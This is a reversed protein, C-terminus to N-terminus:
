FLTVKSLAKDGNFLNALYMYVKKPKLNVDMKEIYFYKKGEKQIQKFYM